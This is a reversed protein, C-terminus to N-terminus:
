LIVTEVAVMLIWYVSLVTDQVCYTVWLIATIILKQKPYTSLIYSIDIM